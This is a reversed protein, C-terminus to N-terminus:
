GVGNDLFISLTPDESKIKEILADQKWLRMVSRHVLYVGLVVLGICIILLPILFYYNEFFSYYRSTAVLVTIVSLPLTFVAIGTRMVALSTRKEALILQIRPIDVSEQNRSISSIIEECEETLTRPPLENKENM